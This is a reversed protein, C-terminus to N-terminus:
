ESIKKLIIEVFDKFGLSQKVEAQLDKMFSIVKEGTETDNRYQRRILRATQMPDDKITRVLNELDSIIEHKEKTTKNNWADALDERGAKLLSPVKVLTFATSPVLYVLTAIGGIAIFNATARGLKWPRSEPEVEELALKKVQKRADICALAGDFLSSHKLTSRKLKKIEHSLKTTGTDDIKKLSEKLNNLGSVDPKTLLLNALLYFRDESNPYITKISDVFSKYEKYTPDNFVSLYNEKNSKFFPMVKVAQQYESRFQIKMKKNNLRDLKHIELENMQMRNEKKMSDVIKKTEGEIKRDLVKIEKETKKVLDVDNKVVDMSTYRTEILKNKVLMVRSSENLSSDDKVLDIYDDIEERRLASNDIKEELTELSKEIKQISARVSKKEEELNQHAYQHELNNLGKISKELMVKLVLIQQKDMDRVNKKLFNKVFETFKILDHNVDHSYTSYSYVHKKVANRFGLGMWNDPVIEGDKSFSLSGQSAGKKSFDSLISLNKKIIELVKNDSKKTGAEDLNTQLSKYYNFFDSRVTM